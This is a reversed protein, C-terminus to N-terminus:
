KAVSNRFFKKSSNRFLLLDCPGIEFIETIKRYDKQILHKQLRETLKRYDKQLRETIVKRYGKQLRETIKAYDKVKQLTPLNREHFNGLTITLNQTPRLFSKRISLCLAPLLQEYYLQYSLVSSYHIPKRV